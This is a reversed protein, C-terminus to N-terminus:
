NWITFGSYELMEKLPMWLPRGCWFSSPTLWFRAFTHKKLQIEFNQLRLQRVCIMFFINLWALNM